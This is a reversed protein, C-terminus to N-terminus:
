NCLRRIDDYSNYGLEGAKSLDLCGEDKLGVAIKSIGRGYYVPGMDIYIRWVKGTFREIAKDYDAIAGDHNGLKSKAFGRNYYVGPTADPNPLDSSKELEISKNLDVIAGRYDELQIKAQGRAAYVDPLDSGDWTNRILDELGCGKCSCAERPFLCIENLEIAKTWDAIAGKFDELQFKAYGLDRYVVCRCRHGHDLANNYDAIAGVFDWFKFKLDGSRKYEDASQGYAGGALLTAVLLSVSKMLISKTIFSTM